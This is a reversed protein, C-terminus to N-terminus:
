IGLTNLTDEFTERTTLVLLSDGENFKQDADPAFTIPQEKNRIGVVLFGKRQIGCTRLSHDVLPSKKKITIDLLQFKQDSEIDQTIEIFGEIAPNIIAKAVKAGSMIYPLIVKNAGALLIKKEASEENARVIVQINPNLNRAALAIYIGDADSDVMSVMYRARTIGAKEFNEDHTADGQIWLYETKQLDNILQPSKEVVVFPYKSRNLEKCLAKGMRGFGCVIAHDKLTKLRREMKKRRLAQFNIAAISRMVETASYAVVDFGVILLIITFIRGAFSLSHVEHYGTTTLTIITMYLADVFGWGEIISYGLVGSFTVLAVLSILFALINREM